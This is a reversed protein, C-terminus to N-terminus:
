QKKNAIGSLVFVLKRQNGSLVNALSYLPSKIGGVIKGILVEHAPLAALQLIEEASFAKGEFTGGKIKLSTNTKSFEVLAKVADLPKDKAFLIATPGEIKIDTAKGILTNKAVTFTAGLKRLSSRLGTISSVKLGRYDAFVYASANAFEEKLSKVIKVKRETPM